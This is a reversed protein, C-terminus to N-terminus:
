TNNNKKERTVVTKRRAIVRTCIPAIAKVFKRDFWEIVLIGMGAVVLITTVYITLYDALPIQLILNNISM